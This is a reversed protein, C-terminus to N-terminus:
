DIFSILPLPVPGAILPKYQGGRVTEMFTNIREEEGQSYNCWYDSYPYAFESLSWLIKQIIEIPLYISLFDNYISEMIDDCQGIALNVLYVEVAITKDDGDLYIKSCCLNNVIVSFTIDGVRRDRISITKIIMSGNNHLFIVHFLVDNTVIILINEYLVYYADYNHGLLDEIIQFKDSIALVIDERKNLYAM